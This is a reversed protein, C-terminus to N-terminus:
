NELIPNAERAAGEPCSELRQFLSNDTRTEIRKFHARLRATECTPTQGGAVAVVHWGAARFQEQASNGPAICTCYRYRVTQVGSTDFVRMLRVTSGPRTCNLGGHGLQYVLGIEALTMPSWYLGTWENLFHLPERRHDMTCCSFCFVEACDDCSFFRLDGSGMAMKCRGCHAAPGPAERGGIEEMFLRRASTFVALPDAPMGIRHESFAFFLHPPTNRLYSLDKKTIYDLSDQRRGPGMQKHLALLPNSAAWATEVAEASMWRREVGEGDSCHRSYFPQCCLDYQIYLDYNFPWLKRERGLYFDYDLGVYQEGRAWSPRYPNALYLHNWLALNAARLLWEATADSTVVSPRYLVLARCQNESMTLASSFLVQHGSGPNRSFHKKAAKDRLGVVVGRVTPWGLGDDPSLCDSVQMWPVRSGSM